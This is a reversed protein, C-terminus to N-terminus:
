GYWAGVKCGDAPCINHEQCDGTAQVEDDPDYVLDEGHVPCKGTAKAESLVEHWPRAPKEESWWIRKGTDPHLEIAGVIVDGRKVTLSRWGREFAGRVEGPLDDDTTFAGTTAGGRRNIGTFTYQSM